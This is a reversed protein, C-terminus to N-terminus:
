SIGMAHLVAQKDAKIMDGKASLVEVWDTEDYRNDHDRCDSVGHDGTGLDRGCQSCSVSEFRPQSKSM